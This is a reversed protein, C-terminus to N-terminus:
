CGTKQRCDLLSFNIVRKILFQQIFLESVKFHNKADNAISHHVYCLLYQVAISRVNHFIKDPSLKIIFYQFM